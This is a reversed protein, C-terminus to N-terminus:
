KFNQQIYSYRHFNGGSYNDQNQLLIPNLYYVKVSEAMEEEPAPHKPAESIVKGTIPDIIELEKLHYATQCSYRSVFYPYLISQNALGSGYVVCQNPISSLNINSGLEWYGNKDVDFLKDYYKYLVHNTNKSVNNSYKIKSSSIVKQYHHTLEHIVTGQMDIDTTSKAQGFECLVLTDKKNPSVYGKTGAVGTSDISCDADKHNESKKKIITFYDGSSSYFVEPVLELADKINAIDEKSIAVGDEEMTVKYIKELERLLNEKENLIEEVNSKRSELHRNYNTYDISLEKGDHTVKVTGWVRSRAYVKDGINIDKQNKDNLTITYAWKGTSDDNWLMGIEQDFLRDEMIVLGVHELKYDVEQYYDKTEVCTLWDGFCSYEDSVEYDIKFKAKANKPVGIGYIIAQNNNKDVQIYTIVPAPM